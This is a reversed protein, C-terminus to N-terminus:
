EDPLEVLQALSGGVIMVCGQLVLRGVKAIAVVLRFGGLGDPVAFDGAGDTRVGCDEVRGLGSRYGVPGM